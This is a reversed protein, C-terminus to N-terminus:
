MEKAIPSDDPPQSVSIAQLACHVTQHQGSHLPMLTEQACLEMGM